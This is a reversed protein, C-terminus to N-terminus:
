EKIKYIKGKYQLETGQLETGFLLNKTGDPREIIAMFEEENKTLLEIVQKDSRVFIFEGTRDSQKKIELLKIV